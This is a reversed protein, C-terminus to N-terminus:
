DVLQIQVVGALASTYPNTPPANNRGGMRGYTGGNPNGTIVYLLPDHSSSEPPPASNAFGGTGLASGGAATRTVAGYEISTTGGVAGDTGQKAWATIYFDDTGRAGGAGITVVPDRVVQNTYTNSAGHSGGRGYKRGGTYAGDVDADGGGGQGGGRVFVNGVFFGGFSKSSAIDVWQGRAVFNGDIVRGAPTLMMALM